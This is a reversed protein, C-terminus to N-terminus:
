RPGSTDTGAAAATLTGRRFMAYAEKLSGRYTGAVGAPDRRGRRAQELYYCAARGLAYTVAASAVGAAAAGALQGYVPVLKTLQRATFSAGIGLATGSGLSAVFEKLTRRNWAIGYSAAIGHLMKGQVTPVTVFGMLPVLDSIGAATAYAVLQPHVKALRADRAARALDRMLTARGDSCAQDLADVLADLGYHPDGYQDEPRTLDVPVAQMSGTGPLARFRREQRELTRQLDRLRPDTRLRDYPPHDSGDPYGDHLRTQVLVIAWDPHRRRLAHLVALVEDQAPDMARAVAVVAHAHGEMLALDEAPDYDVEGLGRTDLFRVVPVDEPFEYIQSHRTCPKFSTGIEAQPNGTIARVISTKGSQVKGLLWIVPAKGRMQEALTEDIERDYGPDLAAEVLRRWLPGPVPAIDAMCCKRACNSSLKGSRSVRQVVAADVM